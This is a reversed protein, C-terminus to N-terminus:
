ALGTAADWTDPSRYHTGKVGNAKILVASATSTGAAIVDKINCKSGSYKDKKRPSVLLYSLCAHVDFFMGIHFTHCHPTFPQVLYLHNLPFGEFTPIAMKCRAMGEIKEGVFRECVIFDHQRWYM